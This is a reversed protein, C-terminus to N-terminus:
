QFFPILQDISGAAMSYQIQDKPYKGGPYPFIVFPSIANIKTQAM